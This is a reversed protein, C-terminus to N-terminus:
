NERSSRARKKEQGYRFGEKRILNGDLDIDWKDGLYILVIHNKDRRRRKAEENVVFKTWEVKKIIDDKYTLYCSKCFYTRPNNIYLQTSCIACKYVM